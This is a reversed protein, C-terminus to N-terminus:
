RKHWLDIPKAIEDDSVQWLDSLAQAQKTKYGHPKENVSTDILESLSIIQESSYGMGLHDQWALVAIVIFGSLVVFGFMGGGPTSRKSISKHKAM